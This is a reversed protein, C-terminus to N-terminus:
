HDHTMLNRKAQPPKKFKAQKQHGQCNTKLLAPWANQLANLNPQDSTKRMNLISNSTKPLFVASTFYWKWWIMDLTYVILIVQQNSKYWRASTTKTPSRQKITIRKGGKWVTLIHLRYTLLSSYWSGSLLTDTHIIQLEEAHFFQDM